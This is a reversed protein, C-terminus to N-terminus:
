AGDLGSPAQLQSLLTKHSPSSKLPVTYILSEPSSSVGSSKNALNACNSWNQIYSFLAFSVRHTTRLKSLSPFGFSQSHLYVKMVPARFRSILWNNKFSRGRDEILEM